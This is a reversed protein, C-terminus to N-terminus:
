CRFSHINLKVAILSLVYPISGFSGFESKCPEIQCCGATSQASVNDQPPASDSQEADAKM